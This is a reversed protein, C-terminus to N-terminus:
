RDRRASARRAIDQLSPHAANGAHHIPARRRRSVGQAGDRLGHDLRHPMASRVGAFDPDLGFAAHCQALTPEGDDIETGAARLGHMRGVPAEDDREIAFDVIVAVDAALQLGGTM